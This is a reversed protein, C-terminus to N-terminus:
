GGSTKLVQPLTARILTVAFVHIRPNKPLVIAKLPEPRLPIAIAWIRCLKKEAKGDWTHREPSRVAEREGFHPASCWDTVRLRAAEERKEYLLRVTGQQDGSDAAVLLWLKTCVGAQVPIQQGDCAVNNPEGDAKAPFRFTIDKPAAPTFVANGKPLREAPYSSGSKLRPLDFNGDKRNAASSIGDNNLWKGLDLMVVPPKPPPGVRIDVRGKRGPKIALSARHNAATKGAPSVLRAAFLVSGAKPLRWEVQKRLPAPARGEIPRPRILPVPAKGSALPKEGEGVRWVLRYGDLSYAPMKGVVPSAVGCEFHSKIIFADKDRRAEHRPAKFWFAAFHKEVQRFLETDHPLEFFLMGVPWRRAAENRRHPISRVISDRDGEAAPALHDLIAVARGGARARIQDLRRGYDRDHQHVAETAFRSVVFDFGEAQEAAFPLPRGVPVDPALKRLRALTAAYHEPEGTVVWGWVSPHWGLAALAELAERSGPDDLKHAPVDLWAVIGEKDCFGLVEPLGASPHAALRAALSAAQGPQTCLLTAGPMRVAIGALRVWEGNVVWRGDAAVVSRVGVHRVVTHLVENTRRDRLLATLRYLAPQDFRWRRPREIEFAQQVDATRNADLNVDNHRRWVPHKPDAVVPELALEVRGELRDRSRNRATLRVDVIASGALPRAVTKLHAIAVAPAAEIWCAELPGRRLWAPTEISVLLTNVRGRRFLASVDFRAELAMAPRSGAERGNLWVRLIGQRCRIVVAVRERSWLAPIPFRIRYLGNENIGEAHPLAVREWTTPLAELVPPGAVPAYEWGDILELVHTTDLPVTASFSAAGLLALLLLASLLSRRLRM